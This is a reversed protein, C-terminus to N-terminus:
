LLFSLPLIDPKSFIAWTICFSSWVYELWPWFISVLIWLSSSYLINCGSAYSCRSANPCWWLSVVSVFFCSLLGDASDQVTGQCPFSLRCQSICGLTRGTELDELPDQRFCKSSRKTGESVRPLKVKRCVPFVNVLLVKRLQPLEGGQRRKMLTAFAAKLAVTPNSKGQAKIMHCILNLKCWVANSSARKRVWLVRAGCRM